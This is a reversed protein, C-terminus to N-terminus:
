KSRNKMYDKMKDLKGKIEDSTIKMEETKQPDQSEKDKLVAKTEARKELTKRLRQKIAEANNQRSKSNTVNNTKSSKPEVTPEVEEGDKGDYNRVADKISNKIRDKHAVKDKDLQDKRRGVLENLTELETKHVKGMIKDLKKNRYKVEEVQSTNPNWPLWKGMEGLWIDFYKDKKKLVELAKEAKERSAYVGRIKIGRIDCNMIREPSIFSMLVYQQGPITDDEDLQDINTYKYHEGDPDEVNNENKDNTYEFIADDELVSSKNDELAQLISSKSNELEQLISSKFDTILDSTNLSEHLVVEVPPETILDTPSSCDQLVMMEVASETLNNNNTILQECLSNHTSLERTAHILNESNSEM